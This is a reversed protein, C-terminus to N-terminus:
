QLEAHNRQRQTKIDCADSLEESRSYNTHMQKKRKDKYPPIKKNKMKNVPKIILVVCM